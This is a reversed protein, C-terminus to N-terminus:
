YNQPASLSGSAKQQRQRGDLIALVLSIFRPCELISSSVWSDKSKRHEMARPFRYLNEIFFLVLQSRLPCAPSGEPLPVWFPLWFLEASVGTSERSGSRRYLFGIRDLM